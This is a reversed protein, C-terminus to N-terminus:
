DLRGYGVNTKAGVGFYTLINKLLTQKNKKSIQMGDINSDNLLFQFRFQIEPLVKLLRLPIPNKLPNKGHPTIADIGLFRQYDKSDYGKFNSACPYADFFVDRCFLSTEPNAEAYDDLPPVGDFIQEELKKLQDENLDFVIKSKPFLFEIMLSHLQAAKGELALREPSDVKYQNAAAKLRSPFFSRLIGKITSGPIYPLGSTHDFSFGLKVEEEHGISHQTGLGTLLGPYQTSATFTINALNNLEFLSIEQENLRQNTITSTKIELGLKLDKVQVLGSSQKLTSGLDRYYDKYFLWGINPIPNM